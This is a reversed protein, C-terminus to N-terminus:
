KQERSGTEPLIPVCLECLHREVLKNQYREMVPRTEDPAWGLAPLVARYEEWATQLAQGTHELLFVAYLGGDIQEQILGDACPVREEAWILSVDYRCAAAKVVSPDDWPIGLIVTQENWLANQKVWGKMRDMLQYNEAGYAGVRRMSLLAAPKMTEKQVNLYFPM